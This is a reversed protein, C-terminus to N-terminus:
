EDGGLLNVTPFENGAEHWEAWIGVYHVRPEQDAAEPTNSDNM